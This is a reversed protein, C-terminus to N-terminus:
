LFDSTASDSLVKARVPGKRLPPAKIEALLSPTVSSSTEHFSFRFEDWTDFIAKTNESRNDEGWECQAIIGGRPDSIFSFWPSIRGSLTRFFFSSVLVAASLQYAPM